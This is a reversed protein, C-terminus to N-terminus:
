QERMRAAIQGSLIKETQVRQSVDRIVSLLCKRGRYNIASRRVEVHFPAGDKRIHVVPSEFVGGPQATRAHEKFLVHSEPLMFVAPNLGIFEQRTYGHMECAASNAEVVYDLERDYIVLGDSAAEFINRYEEESQSDPVQNM